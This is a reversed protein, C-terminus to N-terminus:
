PPTGRVTVPRVGDQYLFRAYDAVHTTVRSIRNGDFGVEIPVLGSDTQVDILTAPLRKKIKFKEQMSTTFAALGIVQSMGGCMPLWTRTTSDIVRLRINETGEPPYAFGIEVGASCPPELLTHAIRHEEGAPIEEGYLLTVSDWGCHGKVYQYSEQQM